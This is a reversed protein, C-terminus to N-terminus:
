RSRRTTARALRERAGGAHPGIVADLDGLSIRRRAQVDGPKRLVGPLARGTHRRADAWLGAERGALLRRRKEGPEARARPTVSSRAPPCTRPWSGRLTQAVPSLSHFREARPWPRRQGIHHVVVAPVYRCTFGARQARFDQDIDEYYAFFDRRIARDGRARQPSLAADGCAGLIAQPSNYQGGDPERRRASRRVGGLHPRRRRRRDSRAPLLRDAQSRGLQRRPAQRARPCASWTRETWSWENNFLGVLEGRGVRGCVNLAATVGVNDALSVIEVEPWHERLWSSTDDRSGNDVM